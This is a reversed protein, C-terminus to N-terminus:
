ESYRQLVSVKYTLLADGKCQAAIPPIRKEVSIEKMENHLIQADKTYHSEEEEKTKLYM